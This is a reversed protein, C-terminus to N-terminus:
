TLQHHQINNELMVHGYELQIAADTDGGAIDEGFIISEKGGDCTQLLRHM